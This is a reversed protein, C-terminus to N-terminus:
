SKDMQAPSHVWRGAIYHMEAGCDPCRPTGDKDYVVDDYPEEMDDDDEDDHDEDWDEDWAEDDESEEEALEIRSRWDLPLVDEIVGYNPINVARTDHNIYFEVNQEQLADLLEWADDETVAPDRLAGILIPIARPDHSLALPLAYFSKNNAWATDGFQQVLYNFVEESGRGAAALVLLMDRRPKELSSYRVFDFAEEVVAQGM